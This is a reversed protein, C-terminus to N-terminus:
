ATGYGSEETILVIAVKTLKTTRTKFKIKSNNRLEINARYQELLDKDDKLRYMDNSRSSHHRKLKLIFCVFVKKDLLNSEYILFLIDWINATVPAGLKAM